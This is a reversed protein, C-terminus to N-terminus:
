MWLGAADTANVILYNKAGVSRPQMTAAGAGGFWPCVEWERGSPMQACNAPM